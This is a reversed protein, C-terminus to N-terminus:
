PPPQVVASHLHCSLEAIILLVLLRNERFSLLFVEGTASQHSLFCFLSEWQRAALYGDEADDIM